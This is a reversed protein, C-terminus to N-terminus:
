NSINMLRDGIELSLAESFFLPFAFLLTIHIESLIFLPNHPPLFFIVPSFIFLFPVGIISLSLYSLWSLSWFEGPEGRCESLLGIICLGVKGNFVPSSIAQLDQLIETQVIVDWPAQHGNKTLATKWRCNTKWKTHEKQHKSWKWIWGAKLFISSDPCISSELRIGWKSDRYILKRQKRNGLVSLTTVWHTISAVELIILVVLANFELVQRAWLWKKGFHM